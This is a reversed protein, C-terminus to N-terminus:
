QLPVVVVAAVGVGLTCWVCLVFSRWAAICFAVSSMATTAAAADQM